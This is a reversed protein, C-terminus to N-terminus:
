GDPRGRANAAAAITGSGGARNEIAIAQGFDEQLAPQLLRSIIDTGGGPAFGVLLAVTRTPYGAQALAPLPLAAAGTAALLGRRSVM